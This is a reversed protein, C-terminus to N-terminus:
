RWFPLWRAFSFNSPSVAAKTAASDKECESSIRITTRRELRKEEFTEEFLQLKTLEERFPNYLYRKVASLYTYEGLPLIENYVYPLCGQVPCNMLVRSFWRPASFFASVGERALGERIVSSYQIRSHTALYDLSRGWLAQQTIAVMNGVFINMGLGYWFLSTKSKQEQPFYM